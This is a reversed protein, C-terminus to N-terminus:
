RDRKRLLGEVLKPLNYRVFKAVSEPPNREVLGHLVGDLIFLMPEKKAHPHVVADILKNWEGSRM